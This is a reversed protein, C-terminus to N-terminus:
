ISTNFYITDNELQNELELGLGLEVLTQFVWTLAL